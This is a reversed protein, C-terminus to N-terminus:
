SANEAVWERYRLSEPDKVRDDNELQWTVIGEYTRTAIGTHEQPCGALDCLEIYINLLAPLLRDRGRFVVVPEDEPIELRETTVIGYKMDYGM